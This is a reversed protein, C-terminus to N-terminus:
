NSKNKSYNNQAQELAKYDASRSNKAALVINDLEKKIRYVSDLSGAKQTTKDLGQSIAQKMGAAADGSLGKYVESVNPLSPNVFLSYNNIIKNRATNPIPTQGAQGLGRAGEAVQLDARENLIKKFERKGSKNERAIKTVLKGTDSDTVIIDYVNKDSDPNYYRKLQYIRNFGNHSGAVIRQPNNYTSPLTEIYQVRQTDKLLHPYDFNGVENRRFKFDTNTKEM